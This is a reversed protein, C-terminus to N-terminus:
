LCEERRCGNKEYVAKVIEFFSEPELSAAGVALGNVGPQSAYAAANSPKVSGAYIIRTGDAEKEGRLRRLIKRIEEFVTGVEEAPLSVGSGMAWVPEYLVTIGGIDSVGLLARGIQEELVQVTFGQERQVANEGICLVPKLGAELASSVKKRIQEDTDGHAKKAASHGIVAYDCIEALQAACVRGYAETEFVDQSSLGFGARRCLGSLPALALDSPAFVIEVKDLFRRLDLDGDTLKGLMEISKQITMSSKWNAMVYKKKM